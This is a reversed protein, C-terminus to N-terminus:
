RNKRQGKEQTGRATRSTAMGDPSVLTSHMEFGVGGVGEPGAGEAEGAAATWLGGGLSSLLFFFGSFFPLLQLFYIHCLAHNYKSEKSTKANWYIQNLLENLRNPHTM